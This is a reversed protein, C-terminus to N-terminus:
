AVDEGPLVRTSVREGDEGIYELYVRGDGKLKDHFGDVPTVVAVDGHHRYGNVARCARVLEREAHNWCSHQDIVAVGSRNVGDSGACVFSMKFLAM